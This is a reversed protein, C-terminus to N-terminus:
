LDCGDLDDQAMAVRWRGDAYIQHVTDTFKQSASGRHITGSATIAVSRVNDDTGPVTVKEFYVDSIDDLEATVGNPRRKDLCAMFEASSVREKQGPYLIRYVRGWQRKNLMEVYRQFADVAAQKTNPEAATAPMASVVLAATVVSVVM